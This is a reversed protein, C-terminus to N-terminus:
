PADADAGSFNTHSRQENKSSMLAKQILLSCRAPLLSHLLKLDTLVSAAEVAVSTEAVRQPEHTAVKADQVPAQHDQPAFEYSLAAFVPPQCIISPGFPEPNGLTRFLILRSCKIYPKPPKGDLHASATLIERPGLSRRRHIGRWPFSVLALLFEEDRNVDSSRHTRVCRVSPVRDTGQSVM